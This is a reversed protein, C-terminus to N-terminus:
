QLHKSLSSHVPLYQFLFHKADNKQNFMLINFMSPMQSPLNRRLFRFLFSRQKGTMSVDRIRGGWQQILFTDSSCASCIASFTLASRCLNYHPHFYSYFIKRLSKATIPTIFIQMLLACAACCTQVAIVTYLVMKIM